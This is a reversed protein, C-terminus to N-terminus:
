GPAAFDPREPRAPDLPEESLASVHDQEGQDRGDV